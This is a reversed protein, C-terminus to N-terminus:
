KKRLNIIYETKHTNGNVTNLVSCYIGDSKVDYVIPTTQFEDTNHANLLVSFWEFLDTPIKTDHVNEDGYAQTKKTEINM